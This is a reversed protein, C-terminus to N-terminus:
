LSLGTGGVLTLTFTEFMQEREGGDQRRPWGDDERTM